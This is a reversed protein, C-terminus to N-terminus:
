HMSLLGTLVRPATHSVARGWAGSIASLPFVLAHIVPRDWRDARQAWTLIPGCPSTQHAPLTPILGMAM